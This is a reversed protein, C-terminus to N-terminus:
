QNMPFLPIHSHLRMLYTCFRSFQNKHLFVLHLSGNAKKQHKKNHEAQVWICKGLTCPLTLIKECMEDDENNNSREPFVIVKETTIM